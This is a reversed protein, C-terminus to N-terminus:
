SPVQPPRLRRVATSCGALEAILADVATDPDAGPPQSGGFETLDERTSYGVGILWDELLALVGLLTEVEQPDLGVPGTAASM